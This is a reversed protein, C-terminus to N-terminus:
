EPLSPPKYEPAEMKRVMSLMGELKQKRQMARERANIFDLDELGMAAAQDYLEIAEDLRKLCSQVQDGDLVHAAASQDYALKCDGREAEGELQMARMYVDHKTERKECAVTSTGFVGLALCALAASGLVSKFREM